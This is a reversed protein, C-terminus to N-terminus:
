NGKYSCVSWNANCIIDKPPWCGKDGASEYFPCQGYTGIYSLPDGPIVVKNTFQSESRGNTAGAPDQAPTQQLPQSPAAQPQTTATQPKGTVVTQTGGTEVVTGDPKTETEKVPEAIVASATDYPQSGFSTKATSGQASVYLGLAIIAGVGLAVTIASLILVQKRTLELPNIM